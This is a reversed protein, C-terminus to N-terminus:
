KLNSLCVSADAENPTPLTRDCHGGRCERDLKRRILALAEERSSVEGTAQAECVLRLLKGILPGSTLGFTDLIDNGDLLKVPLRKQKQNQNEDLIYNVLYNHKEWEKSDMNPGRAALYDALALFLIDIGADGVDRFYRYIARNTPLGINAM